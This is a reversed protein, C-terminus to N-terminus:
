STLVQFYEEEQIEEVNPMALVTIGRTIRKWTGVPYNFQYHGVDEVAGLFNLSGIFFVKHKDFTREVTKSFSIMQNMGKVLDSEPDLDALKLLNEVDDRDEFVIALEKNRFDDMLDKFTQRELIM